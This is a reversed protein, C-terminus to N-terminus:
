SIAISGSYIMEKVDEFSLGEHILMHLAKAISRPCKAQFVNRGIAVGAAGCSLADEVTKLLELEDVKSGGAIVVPIPAVEVVRDFGKVYSTKVIDAGIEYGIRVAHRVTEVSVDVKGRPYVMTLLPIGYYDCLESIIGAEELQRAETKSGINVHISVADAGLAVAKEISTIIRKDNPDESLSTSASLHIILGIDSDGLRKSYKAVGKHLVIADVYGEIQEIVGDIDELGREPKTIGHDMPVILTRGSRFIRRLRRKKGLM